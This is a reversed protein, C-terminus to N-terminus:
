VPQFVEFIIITKKSIVAYNTRYLVVTEM